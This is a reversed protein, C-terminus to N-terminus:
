KTREQKRHADETVAGADSIYQAPAKDPKIKGPGKKVPEKKDARKKAPVGKGADEGSINVIRVEAGDRLASQGAVVVRSNLQLGSLVEVQESSMLGLEPEVRHVKALSASEAAQLVFLSAPERDLDLSRRPALLVDTHREVTMVVSVLTGPALNQDDKLRLTIMRTGSNEDVVPSIREVYALAKQGSAVARLRAEIGTKLGATQSEPIALDVRLNKNDVLYFLARQPTVVQGVNVDRRALVGAFPAVVRLLRVEEEARRVELEARRVNFELDERSKRAVFGRENLRATSKLEAQLRDAELRARDLAIFLRPNSIQALVQGKQVLDGAEVPISKVPGATEAVIEVAHESKVVSTGSLERDINGNHLTQIEVAPLQTKNKDKDPSNKACASVLMLLILVSVAHIIIKM